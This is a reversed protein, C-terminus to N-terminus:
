AKEGSEDPAPRARVTRSDTSATTEMTKMKAEVALHVRQRVEKEPIRGLLGELFGDMLMTKAEEGSIGRTRLYFLEDPDLGGVAVGHSCRVDDSLIELAPLAEAQARDSLILTRSGYYGDAGAAEPAIRIMGDAHSRAEDLLIGKNLYDSTTNPALHNQRTSYDGRQGGTLYELGSLRAAAGEEKLDLTSFVKASRSGCHASGWNLRGDGYVAAKEHGLRVINGGWAETFFFRLSAGRRVILEIIDLRAASEMREPSACEHLLSVEAGEEVNVLLRWARLGAGSSWLLSHLPKEIRVGKPVHLFFGIDFIVAALESFIDTASPIVTGMLRQILDPHDRAAQLLPAFIVGARVFDEDLRATHVERDALVLQGGTKAGAAPKRWVAPARKPRGSVALAELNLESFPFQLLDTHRWPESDPSPKKLRRYNDFADRRQDVMWGPEGTERGVAEVQIDTLIPARLEQEKKECAKESSKPSM